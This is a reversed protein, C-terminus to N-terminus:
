TVSGRFYWVLREFDSTEALKKSVPFKVSYSVQRGRKTKREFTKEIEFSHIKHKEFATIAQTLNSIPIEFRAKLKAQM